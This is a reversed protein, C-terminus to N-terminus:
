PEAKHTHESQFISLCHENFSDVMTSVKGELEPDGGEDRRAFFVRGNRREDFSVLATYGKPLNDYLGKFVDLITKSDDDLKAMAEDSVNHPDFSYFDMPNTM